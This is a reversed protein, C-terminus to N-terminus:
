YGTAAIISGNLHKGSIDGDSPADGFDYVKGVATAVWYGQGDSTTFITAAPDLGGATNIPLSGLNPADGFNFVGGNADLVWYGGGDTTRVISTIASSQQGPQGLNPADGFNYVHGTSTVLWYGNGSADPVVGVATGSCGGIGPCSGEYQADGFAFVGGDSAVMFYGGGSPTPVMGVIPANLHKGSGGSGAPLLGLGPISGFYKADGFAFLGGDSAVLRYGATTPTIGVVPRNLKLNGTSGFFNASGFTFIGGDSGVLWYGHAAPPPPAPTTIPFSQSSGNGGGYDTGTGVAPTLTCTGAAVFSVTLGSATCAASNSTVSPVGDGTTGIIATFGGGVVGSGPLNTITPSSAAAQGVNFSQASGNAAAYVIGAALHATLTCTGVGVFSVATNSAVTCSGPTSSTVSTQGDGNTQVDATFGGGFAPNSPINSISPTTPTNLSVTFMQATGTGAGYNTGTAVLATLSCAGAGVYTVILAPTGSVSCVSPSNSQVSETGDGNTSVVGTFGGGVSGSGPLNSISPTSPSAQAVSFTQPTGDAASYTVGQAVHATLSCQGVGVYSVALGTVSCVAPTNTTISKTGDGNTSVTATFGGGFVNTGPINSITPATPTVGGAQYTYEDSVSTLSTGGSTTVTVDVTGTGAPVTVSIATPTVSNVAAGMGGFMVTAGTVFGTGGITVSGGGATPGANPTVSTVSPLPNTYQYQDAPVTVSAGGEATVVVNVTGGAPFAPTTVTISTGADNISSITAAIGQFTVSGVGDFNTGTITVSTGGAAPGSSPSVNTVAPAAIATYTYVDNPTIASTGDVTTVTIDVPGAVLASPVGTIQIQTPSATFSGITWQTKGFDIIPSSDTLHTGNITVTQTTSGTIPGSNNVISTITPASSPGYIYENVGPSLVASSTGAPTTVTVVAPSGVSSAPADATLEGDWNVHVNTAAVGNFDVATPAGFALFYNGEITVPSGAALTASSSPLVQLVQPAVTAPITAAIPAYLDVQADPVGTENAFSQTYRGNSGDVDNADGMEATQGATTQWPGLINNRHGWCGSVDAATCDGNAGGFGDDYMWGYDAGLINQDLAFDSGFADFSYGGPFSPDSFTALAPASSANLTSSLGTFEPLGRDHRELNTLVLDRSAVDLSAWDSPLVMPPVGELSRAYDINHLYVATCSASTDDVGSCYTAPNLQAAINQPPDSPPVIGTAGAAVGFSVSAALAAISVVVIRMPASVRGFNGLMM